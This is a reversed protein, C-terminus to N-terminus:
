KLVLNVHMENLCEFYSSRKIIRVLWIESILGLLWSLVGLRIKESELYHYQLLIKRDTNYGSCSSGIVSNEENDFLRLLPKLTTKAM